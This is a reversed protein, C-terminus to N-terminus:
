SMKPDDGELIVLSVDVRYWLTLLGFDNLASICNCFIKKDWVNMDAPKSFM